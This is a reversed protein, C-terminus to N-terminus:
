KPPKYTFTNELYQTNFEGKLFGPDQMLRYHYPVTTKVGEIVFEELARKMRNIANERTSGTAILKAIM